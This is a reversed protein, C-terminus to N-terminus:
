LRLSELTRPDPPPADIAALAEALHRRCTVGALMVDIDDRAMLAGLALEAPRRREPDRACANQLRPDRLIAGGGFPERCVIGIRGAKAHALAAEVDQMDLVNGPLQLCSIGAQDLWPRADAEGRCSIGYYRIQGALRKQELMDIIEPKAELDAPPNHLLFLDVYDTSLRRLSGEIQKRIYGPEFCQREQEHRTEIGKRRAASWRRMLPQLLPKVCRILMQPSGLTLGAKTCLIVEDRRGAVVRGLMRESDGQGYIDATDFFTVGADLAAGLTALVEHRPHITSISAIRACGLGLISPRLDTGKLQRYRM